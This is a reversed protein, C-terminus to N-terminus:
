ILIIRKTRYVVDLKVNSGMEAFSDYLTIQTLTTNNWMCVAIKDKYVCVDRLPIDEDSYVWLKSTGSRSMRLTGKNANDGAKKVRDCWFNYVRMSQNLRLTTVHRKRSNLDDELSIDSLEKRITKINNLFWDVNNQPSIGEYVRSRVKYQKMYQTVKEVDSLNTLNPTPSESRKPGVLEVAGGDPLSTRWATEDAFMAKKLPRWVPNASNVYEPQGDIVSKVQFLGKATMIAVRYTQPTLTWTFKSGIQAPSLVTPVPVTSVLIDVPAGSVDNINAGDSLILWDQLSMIQGVGLGCTVMVKSDTLVTACQNGNTHSLKTAPSYSM